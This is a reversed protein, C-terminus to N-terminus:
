PYTQPRKVTDNLSDVTNESEFARNLAKAMIAPDKANLLIQRVEEKIYDDYAQKKLNAM